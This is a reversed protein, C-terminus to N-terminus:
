TRPLQDCGAASAPVQRALLSGLHSDLDPKTGAWPFLADIEAASASEAVQELHALVALLVPPYLKTEGGLCFDIVSPPRGARGMRIRIGRSYDSFGVEWHGGDSLLRLVRYSANPEVRQFTM